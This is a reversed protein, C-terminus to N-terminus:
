KTLYSENLGVMIKGNIEIVLRKIISPYQTMLQIAVKENKVLQQEEVSLSRWTTSKKNLLIEWGVVKCWEMLKEPKIGYKKYDIFEDPANPKAIDSTASITTFGSVTNGTCALEAFSYNTVSSCKTAPDEWSKSAVFYKFGTKTIGDNPPLDPVCISFKDNFTSGQPCCAEKVCGNFRSELLNSSSSSSSTKSGALQNPEGLNIM